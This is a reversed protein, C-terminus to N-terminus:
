HTDNGSGGQKLKGLAAFPNPRGSGGDQQSDAEGNLGGEDLEGEASYVGTNLSEHVEPCVDHKPVLPLSLLLEDEILDILDFQRSGVIVEVEDNDLPFEDAEEETLVIRYTADVDLHQSYPSLCRQCEIWVSGHVALRLYPQPAETGDDQLEPQMSGEAQWSFVTDRDPADAPIENLLRPLQSVRVGGAAQRRSQAFDFLDLSRLDAPCAPKGPNQTM